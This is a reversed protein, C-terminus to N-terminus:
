DRIIQKLINKDSFIQRMFVPNVFNPEDFRDGKIIVCDRLKELQYNTMDSLRMDGNSVNKLNNIIAGSTHKLAAITTFRSILQWVPQLDNPLNIDILKELLKKDLLIKQVIDQNIIVTRRIAGVKKAIGAEYLRKHIQDAELNNAFYNVLSNIAEYKEYGMSNFAAIIAMESIKDDVIEKKDVEMCLITNSSVLICSLAFLLKKM